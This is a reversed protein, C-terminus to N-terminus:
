GVRVKKIDVECIEAIRRKLLAVDDVNRESRVLVENIETIKGDADHSFSIKCETIKMDIYLTNFKEVVNTAFVEELIETQEIVANRLTDIYYFNDEFTDVSFIDNLDFDDSILKLIPGAIVISTVIGTVLFVFKKMEGEPVIIEVIGVLVVVALICEIWANIAEM